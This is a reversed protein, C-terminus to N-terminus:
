TLVHYGWTALLVSVIVLSFIRYKKEKLGFGEVLMRVAPTIILLLIALSFGWQIGLERIGILIVIIALAGRLFHIIM